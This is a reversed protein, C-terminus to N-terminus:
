KISVVYAHSAAIEATSYQQFDEHLTSIKVLDPQGERAEVEQTPISLREYMALYQPLRWRNQPQIDNDIWQWQKQSYQLFHYINISSDFHAFHDSMDIFHSMLGGSRQVRWFEKVIGPLVDGHVHEFTNNSCSFDICADPLDLQRADQLLLELNLAVSLEEKSLNQGTLNKLQNWKEESFEGLVTRVQKENDIFWQITNQISDGSMWPYIDVSIVKSANNLFLAIPIIPYWGSGLELVTAGAISTKGHAAFFRLHDAAHGIKNGFHEENLLVGKTVYRQFLYNVRHAQPLFSIAKQVVAKIIWKGM